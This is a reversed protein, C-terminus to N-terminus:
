GTRVEEGTWMCNSAPAKIARVGSGGLVCVRGELGVESHDRPLKQTKTM